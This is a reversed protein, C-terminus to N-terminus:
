RRGRRGAGGAAAAPRDARRPRRPGTGRRSDATAEAAPGDGVLLLRLRPDRSAAVAFAEVLVAVNKEAALRGHSAVIVADPPWGYAARLDRPTLRRRASGVDVGTPIVRM